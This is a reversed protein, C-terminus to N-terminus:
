VEEQSPPHRTPERDMAAIKICERCLTGHHLQAIDGCKICKPFDEDEVPEVMYYKVSFAPDAKPRITVSRGNEALEILLDGNAYEPHQQRFTVIAKAQETGMLGPTTVTIKKTIHEDTM